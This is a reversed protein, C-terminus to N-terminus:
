SKDGVLIYGAGRVTKLYQPNASDDGLKQRLRSIYVDISREFGDYPTGYVAMHIDNRSMVAGAKEALLRLLDFELTTLEVPKGKFSAERRSADVQLDGVKIVPGCHDEMQKQTRRLLARIRAILIRPRVPKVVFDDAGLELGLVHDIDGDRATLMLVAGKYKPRVRRCVEFGDIGPLMIDLVVLDPNQNRIAAQANLGDRVISVIFGEKSLREGMLQALADDDEVILITNQTAGVNM